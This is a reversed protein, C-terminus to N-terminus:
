EKTEYKSVIEKAFIKIKNFDEENPRDKNMLLFHGPCSFYEKDVTIGLKKCFATIKTHNSKGTASSGFVIISKIKKSNEKLFQKIVSSFGGAYVSSGLFMLDLDEDLPHTMDSVFSSIEKGIEEALKKTNGSKSYYRVQIKM